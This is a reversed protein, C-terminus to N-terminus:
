GSTALAMPRCIFADVETSFASAHHFNTHRASHRAAPRASSNPALGQRLHADRRFIAVSCLRPDRTVQDGSLDLHSADACRWRRCYFGAFAPDTDRWVSYWHAAREARKITISVMYSVPLSIFALIRRLGRPPPRAIFIPGAPM